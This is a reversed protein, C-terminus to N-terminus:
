YLVSTESEILVSGIRLSQACLKLISGRRQVEVDTIPDGGSTIKTDMVISAEQPM